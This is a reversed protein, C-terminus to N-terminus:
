KVQTGKEINEIKEKLSAIKAELKEKEAVAANLDAKLRDLSVNTDFSHEYSNLLIQIKRRLDTDLDKGDVIFHFVDAVTYDEKPHTSKFKHYLVYLYKLESPQDKAFGMRSFNVPCDDTLMTEFVTSPESLYVDCTMPKKQFQFKIMDIFGMLEDRISKKRTHDIIEQMLKDDLVQAVNDIGNILFKNYFSNKSSLGVDLLRVKSLDTNEM